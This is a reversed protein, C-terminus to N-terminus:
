PDPMLKSKKLSGLINKSMGSVKLPSAFNSSMNDSANSVYDDPSSRVFGGFPSIVRIPM